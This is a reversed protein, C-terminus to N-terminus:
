LCAGSMAAGWRKSLWAVAAGTPAARLYSAFPAQMVENLAYTAPHTQASAPTATMGFLAARAVAVRVSCTLRTFSGGGFPTSGFVDVIHFAYKMLDSQM